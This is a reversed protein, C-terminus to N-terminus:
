PPLQCDPYPETPARKATMDDRKDIYAKLVPENDRACVFGGAGTVNLTLYRCCLSKKGAGCKWHDGEPLPTPASM